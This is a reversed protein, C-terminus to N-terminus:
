AEKAQELVFDVAKQVALDAKIQEKEKEGILEKLKDAEMQYKTAMETLEKELEEESAEINEAKVVAELVLRSQIRKVAQPRLSEMFKKADM